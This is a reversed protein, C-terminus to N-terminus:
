PTTSLQPANGNIATDPKRPPRNREVTRVSVSLRDALEQNTATPTQRHARAVREAKTPAPRPPKTATPTAPVTATPVAMSGGDPVSVVPPAVQPKDPQNAPAPPTKDPRQGSLEVLCISAVLVLGDVSLPLLYASAGTEGYRVAVGAMHWYSVWAAIGAIVTAALLRAVALARRHVPVRAVVEITIMLALPPWAAIAQSIPNDAAHLINAATSAAVGLTLVARIAWRVPALNM